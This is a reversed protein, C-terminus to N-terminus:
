LCPTKGTNIFGVYISIEKNIRFINFNTSDLWIYARLEIEANRESLSDRKNQSFAFLSDKKNQIISNISDRQRQYTFQERAINISERTRINTSDAIDLTRKATEIQKSGMYIFAILMGINIIFLGIQIFDAITFISRIYRKPKEQKNTQQKPTNSNPTNNETKNISIPLNTNQKKENTNQHEEEPM